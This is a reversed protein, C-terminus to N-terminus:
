HRETIQCDRELVSDNYTATIPDFNHRALADLAGLHHPTSGAEAPSVGCAGPRAANVGLAPVAFNDTSSDRNCSM